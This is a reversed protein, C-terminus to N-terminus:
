THEDRGRPWVLQCSTGGSPAAVIHLAGQHLRMIRSVIALGLGTGRATQNSADLRVFPQLVRPRESEPIGPGDDLVDIVCNKRHARVEIRVKSKGYAAANRVVNSVAREFLKRNARVLAERDGAIAVQMQPNTEAVEAVIGDMAEAAAFSSTELAPREQDFEDFAVYTLLEEFLADIQALDSILGRTHRDGNEGAAGEIMEVRFRMRSVPARVEHAVTRMLDRQDSLLQGIRDALRNLSGGLGSLAQDPRDDYRGRFDGDVMRKAVAELRRMRRVLPFATALAIVISAGLGAQLGLELGWLRVAGYTILSALGTAVAFRGILRIM